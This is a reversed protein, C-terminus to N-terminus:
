GRTFWRAIVAIVVAGVGIVLLPMTLGPTSVYVMGFWIAVFLLFPVLASM